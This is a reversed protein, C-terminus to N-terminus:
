KPRQRRCVWDWPKGEYGRGGQSQLWAVFSAIVEEDRVLQYSRLARCLDMNGGSQFRDPLKPGEGGHYVFDESVLIQPVGTDRKIHRENPRGDRNTHYSDLQRWACSGVPEYINDGSASVWSHNLDPRKREFRPDHWYQATKLIETVRMAYVLHGGRRVGKANSATGVVWDEVNARERIRPKCTALTCYGHFPNPAFGSDFRVVYSFLRRPM